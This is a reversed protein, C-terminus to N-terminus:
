LLYKILYLINGYLYYNKCAQTTIIFGPPVSLGISSMKVLGFGKGGLLDKPLGHAENFLYVFKDM